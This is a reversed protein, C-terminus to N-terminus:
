KECGCSTEGTQQNIEPSLYPIGLSAGRLIFLLAMMALSTPLFFSRWQQLKRQFVKKLVGALLLGPTTGLGFALMFLGGNLASGGAIAGALAAYVLGCPLLGNIMGVMFFAPISQKRFFYAWWNKLKRSLWIEGVKQEMKLKLKKPLFLFVLILVGISLSLPQQIGVFSLSEGFSGIILGLIFYTLIRGTQYVSNNVFQKGWSNQGPLSLVLPGCMGICHLSGALGLILAATLLPIM